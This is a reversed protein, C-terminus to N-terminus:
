ASGCFGALKLQRRHLTLEGSLGLLVRANHGLGVFLSGMGREHADSLRRWVSPPKHRGLCAHAHALLDASCHHVYKAHTSSSRELARAQM